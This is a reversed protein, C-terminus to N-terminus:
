SHGIILNYAIYPYVYTRSRPQYYNYGTTYIFYPAQVIGLAGVDFAHRSRNLRLAVSLEASNAGLYPNLYFTNDSLFTLNRSISHMVGALVYTVKSNLTNGPYFRMGYGLTANRQSSGFSMLGQFTLQQNLRFLYGKQSPQYIANVGVRFQEGIPFTLKSNIRITAGLITERAGNEPNISGFFPNVNVGVSLNRSIGYQLENLLLFTNRYYLRGKEATYATQGTLLWPSFRNPFSRGVTMPPSSQETPAQVSDVRVLLEPEFYTLQGNSKRVTIMTSDRRVFKGKLQTSDKLVFVTYLLEGSPTPAGREAPRNAAISIVQDAEVYSMDGNSKRVTIISSDQRVIRGRLMTGDRMMLYSQKRETDQPTIKILQALLITPSLLFALLVTKM